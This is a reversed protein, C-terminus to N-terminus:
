SNEISKLVGDHCLSLGSSYVLTSMTWTVSTAPSAGSLKGPKRSHRRPPRVSLSPRGVVVTRVSQSPSQGM